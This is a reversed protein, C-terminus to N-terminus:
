RQLKTTVADQTSFRGARGEPEGGRITDAYGAHNHTTRRHREAASDEIQHNDITRSPPLNSQNSLVLTNDYTDDDIPVQRNHHLNSPAQKVITLYAQRQANVFINASELRSACLAVSLCAGGTNAAHASTSPTLYLSCYRCTM